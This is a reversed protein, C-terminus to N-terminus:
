NDKLLKMSNLFYIHIVIKKSMHWLGTIVVFKSWVGIFCYFFYMQRM